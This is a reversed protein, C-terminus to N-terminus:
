AQVGVPLELWIVAGGGAPSEIGVSGGHAEVVRRAIALGLGTGRAKTTVFPEFIRGAVEPPIGPGKDRVAVRCQGDSEEISVRIRGEGGMAQAANLLLNTIVPKLQDPDVLLALGTADIDLEIGGFLPDEQLLSVASEIMDGLSVMSPRPARPRSFLLLDQVVENLSDIRDIIEPVIGRDPSDEPLRRGIVDIAGKIGALPNKVEHAVVAAMRELSSLRQKLEANLQEIKEEAAKRETTEFRIAIYRRPRGNEGLIPAIATDVWYNSGDKARNRIESRWVEGRGITAWMDHMFTKPHQGSNILRHDQGILEERSYQSIEIFLENVDIIRGRTDTEAVIAVRDLAERIAELQENVRAVQSLNGVLERNTQILADAMLNVCAGLKGVEDRSDVSARPQYDGQGIQEAVAAVERIPRTITGSLWAATLLVLLFVATSIGLLKRLLDSTPGFAEDTDIKVVLGWGLSRVPEWAAVVPKGRYDVHIGSGTQGRLARQMPFATGGTISATRRLGAESDHRLAHLFVFESDVQRAILAEGTSALGTRGLLAPFVSGPDLQLLIVGTLTGDPERVPGAALWIMEYRQGVKRTSEGMYFKKAGLEFASRWADPIPRGLASERRAPDLSYVLRGSADILMFDLYRQGKRYTRLQTDLTRRAAVYAPADRRDILRTVIPLNQHVNHYDRALRMEAEVENVILDLKEVRLRALARLQELQTQRLATSASRLSVFGVVLISAGVLIFHSLVLKRGLTLMLVGPFQLQQALKINFTSADKIVFM